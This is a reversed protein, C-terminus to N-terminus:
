DLNSKYKNILNEMHHLYYGSFEAHGEPDQKWNLYMVARLRKSPSKTNIEDVRLDKILDEEENTFNEEKIAVYALKNQLHFLEGAKEPSLEQTGLVIKLTTDKRTAIAEITAAVVIM